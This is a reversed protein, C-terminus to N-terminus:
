ATKRKNRNFLKMSVFALAYWGLAIYFMYLYAAPYDSWRYTYPPTPPRNSGFASADVERLWFIEIAWRSASIRWVFQALPTYTQIDELTPILGSFVLGWVIAFGGGVLRLQSSPVIASIFYGIGFAAMYMLVVNFLMHYWAERFSFFIGLALTYTLSAIILKPLDALAKALFYPLTSMGRSHDRWYVKQERAFTTSSVIIGSFLIGLCIIVGAERLHDIPSLCNQSVTWPVWACIQSPNPGLYTSNQIAISVFLGMGFHLWQSLALSAGQRSTQLMSRHLLYIFQKTEGPTKRIPDSLYFVWGRIWRGVDFSLEKLVDGCWIALDYFISGISSGSHSAWLVLAEGRVKYGDPLPDVKDVHTPRFSGASMTPSPSRSEKEDIMTSGNSSMLSHRPSNPEPSAIPALYISDADDVSATGVTISAESLPRMILPMTVASEPKKLLEGWRMSSTYKTQKMTRPAKAKSDIDHLQKERWYAPLDFPHFEPYYRSPVHGTMVAMFFDPESETTPAPFGISSFYSNARERPGHYVVQGGRGLMLLDDFQRFIAPTPSHMSVAVTLGLGHSIERILSCIELAVSSDLGATVHDLFLVSPEAVLEMAISLRKRHEAPIGGEGEIGVISHQVPRLRMLGVIDSVLKTIEDKKYFTPLRMRATHMLVETVTLEPVIINERPVYGILKRYKSLDEYKGNVWMSGSTRRRRGALVHLFSTTESGNPGMVLCLRNSKIDGSVDKLIEIANPLVLGISEFKIDVIKEVKSLQIEEAQVNPMMNEIKLQQRMSRVRIHRERWIYLFYTVISGLMLLLITGYKSSNKSGSPCYSLWNCPLPSISGMPCFNGAPCRNLSRGDATCWYGAPCYQPQVSNVPCIFGSPCPAVETPSLCYSGVPCTWTLVGSVVSCELLVVVVAAALASIADFANLTNNGLLEGGRWPTM